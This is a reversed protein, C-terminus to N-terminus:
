SPAVENVAEPATNVEVVPEGPLEADCPTLEGGTADELAARLKTILETNGGTVLIAMINLPNVGEVPKGDKFPTFSHLAGAVTERGAEFALAACERASMLLLNNMLDSFDKETIPTTEAAPTEVPAAQEVEPVVETAEIDTIM